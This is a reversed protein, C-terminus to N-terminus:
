NFFLFAPSYGSLPFVCDRQRPEEYLSGRRTADHGHDAEVTAAVTRITIRQPTVLSWKM